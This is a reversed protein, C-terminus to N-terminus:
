LRVAIGVQGPALIPRITLVRARTYRLRWKPVLAGIGGGILAGGIGGALTLLAVEGWADCGAGYSLGECLGGWVLFALPTAIAGGVIAGTLTARGQVWLSDVREVQFPVDARAFLETVPDAPTGGLRTVFRSHGTTSVRVVQGPVLRGFDAGSQAHLRGAIVLAVVLGLRLGTPM